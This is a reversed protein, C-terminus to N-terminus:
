NGNWKETRGKWSTGGRRGQVAYEKEGKKTGKRGKQKQKWKSLKRRQLKGRKFDVNGEKRESIEKGEQLTGEGRAGKREREGKESETLDRLTKM